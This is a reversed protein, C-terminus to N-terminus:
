RVNFVAIVHEVSGLVHACCSGKKNSVRRAETMLSISTEGTSARYPWVSRSGPSMNLGFGAVDDSIDSRM